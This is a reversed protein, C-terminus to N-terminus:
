FAPEILRLGDEVYAVGPALPPLPLSFAQAGEPPVIEFSLARGDSTSITLARLEPGGAPLIVFVNGERLQACVDGGTVGTPPGVDGADAPPRVIVRGQPTAAGGPCSAGDSTALAMHEVPLRTLADVDPPAQPEDAISRWTFSCATQRVSAPATPFLPRAVWAGTVGQVDSCPGEALFALYRPARPSCSPDRALPADSSAGEGDSSSRAASCAALALALATAIALAGTTHAGRRM